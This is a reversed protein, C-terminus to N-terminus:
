IYSILLFLFISQDFRPFHERNPTKLNTLQQNDTRQITTYNFFPSYVVLM